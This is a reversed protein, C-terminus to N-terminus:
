LWQECNLILAFSDDYGSLGEDQVVCLMVQESVHVCVCVCVCVYVCVCARM